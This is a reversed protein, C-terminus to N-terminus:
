ILFDTDILKIRIDHLYRKVISLQILSGVYSYIVELYDYNFFKNGVHEIWYKFHIFGNLSSTYLKQLHKREEPQTGFDLIYDVKQYFVYDGFDISPAIEKLASEVDNIEVPQLNPNLGKLLDILVKQRNLSFAFVNTSIYYCATKAVDSSVSSLTQQLTEKSWETMYLAGWFTMHCHRNNGSRYNYLCNNFVLTWDTVKNADFETIEFDVIDQGKKKEDVKGNYLIRKGIVFLRRKKNNHPLNKEYLM